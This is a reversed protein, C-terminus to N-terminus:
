RTEEREIDERLAFYRETWVPDDPKYGLNNVYCTHLTCLPRLHPAATCGEPGMLPLTPHATRELTVGWRSSAWAMALTCYTADCCRLPIPCTQCEPLTLDAMRQYLQILTEKM